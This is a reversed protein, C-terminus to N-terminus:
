IWAPSRKQEFKARLEALAPWVIGPMRRTNNQTIRTTKGTTCGWEKALRRKVALAGMRSLEKDAHARVIVIRPEAIGTAGVVALPEVVVDVIM